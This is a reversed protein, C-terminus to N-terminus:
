KIMLRECHSLNEGSKRVLYVGESYNTLDVSIKRNNQDITISKSLIIKGTIDVMELTYVGQRVYPLNVTVKDSAPNPYLNMQPIQNDLKTTGEGGCDTPYYLITEDTFQCGTSTDTVTVSITTHDEPIFVNIIQTTDGTSWLYEDWGGGADITATSDDCEPGVASAISYPPFDDCPNVLNLDDLYLVTGLEGSESTSMFYKSTNVLIGVETITVGAPYDLQVEFEQYAPSATLFTGTEYVNDEDDILGIYIMATDNLIPEFKYFGTLMSPNFDIPFTPLSERFDFTGEYPIAFGAVSQTLGGEAPVMTEIAELRLAHAGSHADPTSTAAMDGGFLYSFLNTTFWNTPDEYSYDEWYEFDANWITDTIGEFWISDVQMWGGPLPNEPNSCTFAVLATDPTEVMTGIQFVLKTYTSQTGSIHYFNQSIIKGASKFSVLVLGTDDTAIDFKFYGLLSDPAGSIPIGGDFHLTDGLDGDTIRGNCFAYGFFTADSTVVTELRMAYMGSYSDTTKLTTQVGGLFSEQNGTNWYGPEDYLFRMEWNEFGRNPVNQSFSTNIYLISLITFTLVKTKM